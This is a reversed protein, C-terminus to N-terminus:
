LLSWVLVIGLLIFASTQAFLAVRLMTANREMQKSNSGWASSFNAILQLQVEEESEDLYHEALASSKPGDM